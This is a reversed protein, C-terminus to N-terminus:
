KAASQHLFWNEAAILKEPTGIDFWNYHEAMNCKINLRNCNALYFDFISFKKETSFADLTKFISPSVVEICGYAVEHHCNPDPKFGKPRIEGTKKNTWGRLRNTADCILYRSTTRNATLLTADADKPHSDYFAKLDLDTLIDANHILFPENGSLWKKAKRIGGGTDLLEDREDSIHIQIGFNNNAELFDIIQQGFHHINVVIEDFGAAILRCVVHELMPQGAIEVLAKPKNDTLPRLRTGLGAAFIMAKM